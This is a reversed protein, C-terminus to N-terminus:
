QMLRASTSGTRPVSSPVKGKKEGSPTHIPNAASPLSLFTRTSPPAGITRASAFQPPPLQAGSPVMTYVGDYLLPSQRTLAPPPM